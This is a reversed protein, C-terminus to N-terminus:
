ENKPVTIESTKGNNQGAKRLSAENAKNIKQGDKYNTAHSQVEDAIVNGVTLTPGLITLGLMTFVSIKSTINTKINKSM